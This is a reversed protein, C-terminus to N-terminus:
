RVIAISRTFVRDGARIRALYVGAPAPGAATLGNWALMWRGAEYRRTPDQWLRRGQVDLITLSVDESAALNLAFRVGGSTPNPRAESVWSAPVGPSPEGVAAVPPDHGVLSFITMSPITATFTGGTVAIAAGRALNSANPDTLTCTLTDIPPLHDLEGRITIPGSGINRGVIALRGTSSDFFAETTGLGSITSTVSLPRSGSEVFGSVQAVAYFRKRPTYTATTTDYALLGWYGMHNHHYYFSDYGDYYAVLAMGNGLSGLLIDATSTAFAWEGQPPTGGTDCDSCDAATETLWYDRGPYSTGPTTPGGYRHLAFHDVRGAITPDGMMATIYTAGNGQQATDPGVLRVDTLGMFDLEGILARLFVVYQSSGICPGELCNWDEENVPSLLRLDLGKVTRGYYVLSAIMTAFESEKGTTLNSAVGYAGSGGLWTPTWGMFNLVIHDGTVGISDLYAITAWLDQMAPAEYIRALTAPDRAHLLAIDSENTVWTMPDRVVRFTTMGAGGSAAPRALWDLAPRLGGGNWSNVNVNVGVGATRQFTVSGDVILNPAAVAQAGGLTLALFASAGWVLATKGARTAARGLVRTVRVDRVASL